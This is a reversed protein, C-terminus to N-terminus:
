FPDTGDFNGQYILTSLTGEGGGGPNGTGGGGSAGGPMGIREVTMTVPNVISLHQSYVGGRWNTASELRIGCPSYAMATIPATITATHTRITPSSPPLSCQPGPASSQDPVVFWLDHPQGNGSTIVVEQIDIGRVALILDTNINLTSVKGWPIIVHGCTTLDVVTPSTYSELSKWAAETLAQNNQYRSCQEPPITVQSYGSLTKLDNLVISQWSLPTPMTIVPAAQNSLKAGTIYAQNWPSENITNSATTVNGNIRSMWPTVSVAGGAHVNGTIFAENNTLAVSGGATVTGVIGAKFGSLTINGGVTVNGNIRLDSDSQMTLNGSVWVNGNITCNKHSITLNGASVVVDGDITGRESWGCNINGDPALIVPLRPEGPAHNLNNIISMGTLAQTGTFFNIVGTGGDINGPDPGAGPTFRYSAAALYEAPGDTGKVIIRVETTSANDPCGSSWSGSTNARHYVQAQYAPDSSTYRGPATCSQNLLDAVAVALGSDAAARALTRQKTTGSLNISSSLLTSLALGIITMLALVVMVTPLAVGRDSDSRKLKNALASPPKLLPPLQILFM